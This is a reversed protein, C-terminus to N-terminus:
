QAVKVYGVSFSRTNGESSKICELKSFFNQVNKISKADPSSKLLSNLINIECKNRIETGHMLSSLTDKRATFSNKRNKALLFFMHMM